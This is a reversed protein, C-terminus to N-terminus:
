DPSDEIQEFMPGLVKTFPWYQFAMWKAPKGPIKNFHQHECGNPKVPLIILCGCLVEHWLNTECSSYYVGKKM